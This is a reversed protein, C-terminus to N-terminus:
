SGTLFTPAIVGRGLIDEHLRKEKQKRNNGSQLRLCGHFEENRKLEMIM